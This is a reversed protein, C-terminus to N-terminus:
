SLHHLPGKDLCTRSCLNKSTRRTLCLGLVSCMGSEEPFGRTSSEGISFDHRKGLVPLKAM